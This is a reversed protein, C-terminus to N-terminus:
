RAGSIALANTFDPRGVLRTLTSRYHTKVLEGAAPLAEGYMRRYADFTAAAEARQLHRSRGLEDDEAALEHIRAGRLAIATDLKVAQARYPNYTLTKVAFLAFGVGLAISTWLGFHIWFHFVSSVDVQDLPIEQDAAAALVALREAAQTRLLGILVGVFLWVPTLVFITLKDRRELHERRRSTLVATGVAHPLATMILALVLALVFSFTSTEGRIFLKVNRMMVYTEAALFVATLGFTILWSRLVEGRLITRLRGDRTPAAPDTGSWDVEDHTLKEGSLVRSIERRKERDADLLGQESLLRADAQRIAATPELDGVPLASLSEAASRQLMQIEHDILQEYPLTPLAEVAIQDYAGSTADIRAQEEAQAKRAELDFSVPLAMSPPVGDRLSLEVVDPKTSKRTFV